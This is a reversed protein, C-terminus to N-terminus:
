EHRQELLSNRSLVVVATCMMQPQSSRLRAAPWNVRSQLLVLVGAILLRLSSIAMAVPSESFHAAEGNEDTRRSLLVFGWFIEELVSPAFCHGLVSRASARPMPIGPPRSVPNPAKKPNNCNSTYWLSSGRSAEGQGTMRLDNRCQNQHREREGRWFGDSDGSIAITDDSDDPPAIPADWAM